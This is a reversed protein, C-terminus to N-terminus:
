QPAPTMFFSRMPDTARAIDIAAEAGTRADTMLQVNSPTVNSSPPFAFPVNEVSEDVPSMTEYSM